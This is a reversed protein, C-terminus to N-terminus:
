LSTRIQDDRNRQAILQQQKGDGVRTGPLCSGTNPQLYGAKALRDLLLHFYVLGGFPKWRRLVHAVRDYDLPKRLRM